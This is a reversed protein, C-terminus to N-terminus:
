NMQSSFDRAFDIDPDVVVRPLKGRKKQMELMLQKERRKEEISKQPYMKELERAVSIGGSQVGTIGQGVRHSLRETVDKSWPIVGGQPFVSPSTGYATARLLISGLWSKPSVISALQGIAGRMGQSVVGSASGGVGPVKGTFREALLEMEKEIKRIDIDINALATKPDSENTKYRTQRMQDRAEALAMLYRIKGNLDKKDFAEIDSAVADTTRPTTAKKVDEQFMQRASEQRDKPMSQVLKEHLGEGTLEKAQAAQRAHWEGVEASRSQGGQRWARKIQGAITKLESESAGEELAKQYRAHANRVGEPADSISAPDYLPASKSLKTRIQEETERITRQPLKPDAGQSKLGYQEQIKALGSDIQERLDRERAASDTREALDGAVNLAEDKKSGILAQKKAVEDAYLEKRSKWNPHLQSAGSLGGLATGIGAQRMFQYPDNTRDVAQQLINGATSQVGGTAAGLAANKGRALLKEINSKSAWELTKEQPELSGELVKAMAGSMSNAIKSPTKARKLLNAVAQGGPIFNLATQSLAEGPTNVQSAGYLDVAKGIAGMIGMTGAAPIAAVSLAGTMARLSRPDKLAATPDGENGQRGAYQGAAMGGSLLDTMSMRKISDPGTDKKARRQRAALKLPVAKLRAEDDSEAEITGLKEGTEEDEIEYEM